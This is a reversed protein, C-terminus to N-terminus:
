PQAEQAFGPPLPAQARRDADQEISRILREAGARGGVAGHVALERELAALVPGSVVEIVKDMVLNTAAERILAPLLERSLAETTQRSAHRLVSRGAIRLGAGAGARLGGRVGVSVARVATTAEPVLALALGVYSIYLEMELEARNLVLEPNILSGYLDMRSRAHVVEVTALAVGAVFAAPPCLVALITLGAFEVFRSFTAKAEENLLAHRIGAGWIPDGRFFPGLMEHALLHTGTLAYPAGPVQAAMADRTIRAAQLGFLDDDAAKERQEKNRRAMDALLDGLIREAATPDARFAAVTEPVDAVQQILPDISEAEGRKQAIAVQLAQRTWLFGREDRIRAVGGEEVIAPGEGPMHSFGETSVCADALARAAAGWGTTPSVVAQVTRAREHRELRTLMDTLPGIESLRSLMIEQFLPAYARLNKQRAAIQEASTNLLQHMVVQCGAIFLRGVARELRERVDYLFDTVWHHPYEGYEGTLHTRGEGTHVDRVLRMLDATRSAAQALRRLLQISASDDPAFSIRGMNGRTGAPAMTSRGPGETAAMRAVAAAFNTIAGTAMVCFTAPHKCPQIGLRAAIENVLATMREGLAGLRAPDAETGRYPACTVTEAFLSPPLMPFMRGGASSGNGFIGYKSGGGEAGGEGGEGGGTSGTGGAKGKAGGGGGKAGAGAEGAGTGIRVDSVRSYPIVYAAGTWGIEAALDGATAVNFSTGEGFDIRLMHTRDPRINAAMGAVMEEVAREVSQEYQAEDLLQEEMAQAESFQARISTRLGPGYQQRIMAARAEGAPPLPEQTLTAPVPQPLLPEEALQFGQGQRRARIVKQPPFDVVRTKGLEQFGDTTVYLFWRGQQIALLAIPGDSITARYLAAQRWFAERLVELNAPPETQADWELMPVPPETGALPVVATGGEYSDLAYRGLTRLRHPDPAERPARLAAPEPAHEQLAETARAIALTIAREAAERGTRGVSSLADGSWTISPPHPHIAPAAGTAALARSSRRMARGLARVLASELEPLRDELVEPVIRLRIPIHVAVTM